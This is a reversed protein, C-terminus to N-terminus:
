SGAGPSAVPKEEEAIIVEDSVTSRTGDTFDITLTVWYNKHEPYDHCPNKADMAIRGDGFDWTIKAPEPATGGLPASIYYTFCRKTGSLGDPSTAHLSIKATGGGNEGVRVTIM